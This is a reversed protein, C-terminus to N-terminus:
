AAKMWLGEKTDTIDRLGTPNDGNKQRKGWNRGIKCDTPIKFKEGFYELEIDMAKEMAAAVEEYSDENCQMLISDHVNVLFQAGTHPMGLEIDYYCNAVAEVGMAGVTAQPIYSYAERILKDDMRGFFARNQGLCTQLTRTKRVQTEVERWFNEKLEPYIMFYKMILQDATQRNIRIGTTEADENVVQVLHEGGMGYHCAHVVRKALYREEETVQSVPKRFIRAANEKHIDRTPDEFLEILGRCRALYAVVRAEAQSFDRYIFLKGEDAIFMRKVLEGIKKRAPINQLNTGSGYISARSSLRDSKTGTVDFSTRIRGDPDITTNIYRELYDRRERIKLITLLMPHKYKEAMEIIADKNATERGTKRNMKKPLKLKDYVLAKVQPSSKVNIPSGAAADLFSQLRNIEEEYMKRLNERVDLDIKIGRRMTTLLPIQARMKRNFSEVVGFDVMEKEQVEKIEFTVASDKGNYLWFDNLDGQGAIGLKGDDKYYPENTYISTQFGLGKRFVSQRKKGHLKSMEDEGSASEAFLSHHAVMTDYAFNTVNIGEDLLVTVDFMGNQYIKKAPCECLLRIDHWHEESDKHIVLSRHASDSFSVCVIKWTKGDPQLWCEIDVSLWDAKLMEDRIKRRVDAPPNKYIDRIPLIMEPFKSQAKVKVFDMEMISRAEYVMLSFPASYTPIVKIGPVLTCPLISGRYKDIGKKGTLPQLTGPGLAVIVNPKVTEIDKKLQLVGSLYKMQHEKKLFNEFKVGPPPQHVLFTSWCQSLSIGARSLTHEMLYGAGGTFPMGASFDGATPCEGVLM